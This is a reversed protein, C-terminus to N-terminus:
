SGFFGLGGTFGGATAKSAQLSKLQANTAAILSLGVTKGGATLRAIDSVGIEANGVFRLGAVDGKGTVFLLLHSPSALSEAATADFFHTSNPLQSLSLAHAVTM